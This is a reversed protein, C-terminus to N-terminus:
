YKIDGLSVIWSENRIKAETKFSMSGIAYGAM